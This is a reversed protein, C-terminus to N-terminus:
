RETVERLREIAGELDAARETLEEASRDLEAAERQLEHAREALSTELEEVDVQGVEVRVRRIHKCEAVEERYQFDACECAPERLDVRYARGSQTTVEFLADAEEYVTMHETAARVTRSDVEPQVSESAM